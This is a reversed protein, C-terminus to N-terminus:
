KEVTIKFVDYPYRRVDIAELRDKIYLTYVGPSLPGKTNISILNWWLRDRGPIEAQEWDGHWRSIVKNNKKLVYSFYELNASGLTNRYITVYLSGNKTNYPLFTIKSKAGYRTIEHTQKLSVNYGQQTKINTNNSSSTMDPSKCAVLFLISSMILLKTLATSKIM